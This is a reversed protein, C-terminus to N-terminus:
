QREIMSLQRAVAERLPEGADSKGDLVGITVYGRAFWQWDVDDSDAEGPDAAQLQVELQGGQGSEVYEIRVGPDWTASVLRVGEIDDPEAAPYNVNLITHEPLLGGGEARAEQLDSLLETVLDAAGSFAVFTSPFPIPQADRESPDIGVSIAIAPFGVYMAMTAAGVTGSSNAYGLNPGFNAGSVVIDPPADNMLHLLGVLVADAPSGDVYWVGPSQEKYDLKGGITVRMGSGSQNSLPAVVTVEHGAALLSERLANIGPASYGDDNTLLIRLPGPEAALLSTTCLCAALTVVILWFFFTDQTHRTARM